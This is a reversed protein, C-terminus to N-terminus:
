GDQWEGALSAATVNVLSAVRSEEQILSANLTCSDGDCPQNNHARRGPGECDEAPLPSLQVRLGERTCSPYFLSCGAATGALRRPEIIKDIEAQVPPFM